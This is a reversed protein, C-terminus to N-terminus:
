ATPEVALPEKLAPLEQQRVLVQWCRKWGAWRQLLPDRRTRGVWPYGTWPMLSTGARPEFSPMRFKEVPQHHEFEPVPQNGPAARPREEAMGFRWGKQMRYMGQRRAPLREAVPLVALRCRQWGMQMEFNAEVPAELLAAVRAAVFEGPEWPELERGEAALVPLSQFRGRSEPLAPPLM